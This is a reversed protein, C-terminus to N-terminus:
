LSYNLEVMGNELRIGSEYSCIVLLTIPEPIAQSFSLQLDLTGPTIHILSNSSGIGLLPLNHRVQVLDIGTLETACIQIKSIKNIFPAGSLKNIFYTLFTQVQFEQFSTGTCLDWVMCWDRYRYSFPSIGNSSHTGGMSTNELFHNFARGNDLEDSAVTLREGPLSSSNLLLNYKTIWKPWFIFPNKTINMSQDTSLPFIM